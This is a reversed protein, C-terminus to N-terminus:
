VHWTIEESFGKDVGKLGDIPISPDRNPFVGRINISGENIRHHRDEAFLEWIKEIVLNYPIRDRSVEEDHNIKM